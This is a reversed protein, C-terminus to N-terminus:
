TATSNIINNCDCSQSQAYAAWIALGTTVLTSIGAVIRTIYLLFTKKAITKDQLQITTRHEDVANRLLGVHTDVIKGSSEGSFESEEDDLLVMKFLEIILDKYENENKKYIKEYGKTEEELPAKDKEGHLKLITDALVTPEIHTKEALFQALQDIDVVELNEQEVISNDKIVPDKIVPDKIIKPDQIIIVDKIPPKTIKIRKPSLQNPRKGSYVRALERIEDINRPTYKGDASRSTVGSGTMEKLQPNKIIRAMPLSIDDNNGKKEPSIFTINETKQVIIDQSISLNDPEQSGKRRQKM